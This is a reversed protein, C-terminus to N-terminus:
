GGRFRVTAEYEHPWALRVSSRFCELGALDHRERMFERLYRRGATAGTLLPHAESDAVMMCGSCVLMVM